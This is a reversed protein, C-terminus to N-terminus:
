DDLLVRTRGREDAVSRLQGQDIRRYVTSVNVGLRRAAEAVSVGKASPQRAVHDAEDVLKLAYHRAAWASPIGAEATARAIEEWTLGAEHCRLMAHGM